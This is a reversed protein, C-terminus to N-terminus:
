GNDVEDEYSKYLWPGSGYMAELDYIAERARRTISHFANNKMWGWDYVPVPRGRIGKLNEWDRALVTDKHDIGHKLRWKVLEQKYGFFIYLAPIDNHPKTKLSTRIKFREDMWDNIRGPTDRILVSSIEDWQWRSIILKRNAAYNVNSTM